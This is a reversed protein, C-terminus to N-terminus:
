EHRLAVVPDVATARRAPLYCAALAVASFAAAVATFTTADTPEIGFLMSQLYRSLAAAGVLGLAIGTATLLLGRRLILSLVQRRHAGLAMRVGIEQTRTVVSYALVGYIGIAALVGAVLAFVTLLTAYFRQRAVSAAVLREVPEISDVGIAQDLDAVAARVLPVLRRPDGSTRVVFSQLGIAAENTRAVPEADREFRAIMQRYDVFIEPKADRIPSENRIDGVVGVIQMPVGTKGLYWDLTQGIAADEGGFYKRAASQNLVIVFPATAGDGDTFERGRVIRMELATIFGPSVSRVRSMTENRVLELDKGPPVFNGIMLEETILVGHRSFGAAAVGPLARLRALLEGVAGAKKAISYTDPLLTQFELANSTTYGLDTRMLKVFSHALLGAGVLLVTAMVLQGVVLMARTRSEGRGRASGRTGMASLQNTRSLQVAPLLGFILATLLALTLATALVRYDVQLESARPLLTAGFILRFVGEAETIALAKVLWVGGAGILAGAMGGAIALVACEALILRIIRSRSAGVAVRVAMERKRATGRALLLNAVNACVILLVVAVAGVLVRLAPRVPAVLQEKMGVLEFRLGPLPPANAPRPPKIAAGIDNAEQTAAELTVGDALRAMMGVGFPRKPDVVIPTWFDNGPGGFEFSAPMVGVVTLVRPPSNTIGGPRFELVRGLIDPDSEFHRQWTEFSLVVVGTNADDETTLVRGMMPQAGLLEFTNGSVSTGWLGAIGRNTRVLRQGMGITAATRDLTRARAQWERFEVNSPGRQTWSFGPRFPAINEVVRFLRDSHPYPLPQLLVANVVSYIATTAGIGISLTLVAAITFGRSRALSRMAYALDGTM